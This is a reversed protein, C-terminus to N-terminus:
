TMFSVVQNTSSSPWLCRSASGPMAPGITAMTAMTALNSKFMHFKHTKKLHNEIVIQPNTNIHKEFSVFVIQHNMSPFFLSWLTLVQHSKHAQTWWMLNSIIIYIREFNWQFVHLDLTTQCVLVPWDQVSMMALRETHEMNKQELRRSRTNNTVYPWMRLAPRLGVDLCVIEEIQQQFSIGNNSSCGWLRTITLLQLAPMRPQLELTIPLLRM